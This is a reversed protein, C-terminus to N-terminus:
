KFRETAITSTSKTARRLPPLIGIQRLGSGQLFSRTDSWGVGIIAIAMEMISVQQLIPVRSPRRGRRLAPLAIGSRVQVISLKLAGIEVLPCIASSDFPKLRRLRRSATGRAAVPSQPGKIGVIPRARYVISLSLPASHRSHAPRLGVLSTGKDLYSADFAKLIDVRDLYM